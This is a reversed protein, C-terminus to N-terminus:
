GCIKQPVLDNRGPEQQRWCSRVIDDDENLIDQAVKLFQKRFTSTVAKTGNISGDSKLSIRTESGEKFNRELSPQPNDKFYSDHFRAPIKYLMSPIMHPKILEWLKDVTKESFSLELVGYSRLTTKIAYNSMLVDQVKLLGKKCSKGAVIKIGKNERSGDDMIWIALNIGNLNEIIENPIIRKGKPYYMQRFPMFVPHSYTYFVNTPFGNSFSDYIRSVFVDFINALHLNYKKQRCPM